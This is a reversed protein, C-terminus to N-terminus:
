GKCKSVGTLNLLFYYRIGSEEVSSGFFFSPLEVMYSTLNPDPPAM